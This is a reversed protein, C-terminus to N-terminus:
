KVMNYFWTLFNVKRYLELGSIAQWKVFITDYAIRVDATQEMVFWTNHEM